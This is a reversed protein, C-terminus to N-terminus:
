GLKGVTLVVYDETSAALYELAARASELTEHLSLPEPDTGPNRGWVAYLSVPTTEDNV